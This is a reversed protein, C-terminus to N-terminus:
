DGGENRSRAKKRATAVVGDMDFLSIQIVFDM